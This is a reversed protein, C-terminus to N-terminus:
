RKGGGVMWSMAAPLRPAPCQHTTPELAEPSQSAAPTHPAWAWPFPFRCSDLPGDPSRSVSFFRKFHDASTRIRGSSCGFAITMEVHSLGHAAAATVVFFITRQPEQANRVGHPGLATVAGPVKNPTTASKINGANEPEDETCQVTWRKAPTARERRPLLALRM